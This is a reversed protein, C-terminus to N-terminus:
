HRHEQMSRSVAHQGRGRGDDQGAQTGSAQADQHRFRPSAARLKARAPREYAVGRSKPRHYRGDQESLNLGPTWPVFEDEGYGLVESATKQGSATAIIAALIREGAEEITETDTIVTGCDIDIDSAMRRALESTSALKLSPVHAAGFCSGRGTTFCILNAGSAIQGPASVPDYGPSDMFVLGHRDIPEAYEFVGMLPSTGSKAVAGQSKELITTIGGAHNGPSPNADLPVAMPPRPRDGARFCAFSGTPWKPMPPARSCSRRPAWSKRRKPFSRQVGCAILRDVAAGLAPNASISSFADSGGCQLGITVASLPSKRRSVAARPLMAGLAQVGAEIARLTGGEQQIMLVNLRSSPDLGSERLFLDPTNDECGLGVVLVGGVNPHAAYGASFVACCRWALVTPACAADRPMASRLWVM